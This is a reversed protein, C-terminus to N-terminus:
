EEINPVGDGTLDINLTIAQSRVDIQQKAKGHIKDHVWQSSTIALTRQKIDDSVAYEKITNVITQETLDSHQELYSQISPKALNESAIARATNRNEIDYTQMATETASQKPKNLITDAFAKQKRTLPKLQVAQKLTDSASNAQPEVPTNNLPKATKTM